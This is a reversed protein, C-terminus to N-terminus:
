DAGRIPITLAEKSEGEAIMHCRGDFIGGPEIVLCPTHIEGTVVGSSQIGVYEKAVIMGEFRGFIIVRNGQIGGEAQGNEGIVLTDASLITGKFQADLRFTGSVELTGELRVAGDLFGTWQQGARSDKTRGKKWRM